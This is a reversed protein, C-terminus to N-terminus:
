LGGMRARCPKCWRGERGPVVELLEPELLHECGYCVRALREQVRAHEAEYEPHCVVCRALGDGGIFREFFISAHCSACREAVLPRTLAPPPSGTFAAGRPYGRHRRM